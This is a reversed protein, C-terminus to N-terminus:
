SFELHLKGDKFTKSTIRSRAPKTLIKFFAKNGAMAKVEVSEELENISIDKESKVGPIEMDVTVRSDMGKVETKPEETVKTVPIAIKQPPKERKLGRPIARATIHLQESVEKRVEEPDVGGFTKVSVRPKERGRTIIKITFGKRKVPGRFFPTIDLTEFQREFSRQMKEMEKVEREMRSFINGPFIDFISRRRRLRTGCKPCFSWREDVNAKCNSCIM